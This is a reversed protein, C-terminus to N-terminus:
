VGASTGTSRVGTPFSESLAAPAVGVFSAVLLSLTCQVIILTITTPVARLWLFLPLVCLWCYLQASFVLEHTQRHPGIFSGFVLCGAVFPVNAVLSAGFAGKATFNFTDPHQVYTPFFDDACLRSCGVAGGRLIRDVFAARPGHINGPAACQAGERGQPPARNRRFHRPKMWRAATLVPGRAILLGFIFPIRLGPKYM